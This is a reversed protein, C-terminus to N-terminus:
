PILANLAALFAELDLEYASAAERLTEEFRVACGDCAPLHFDRFVLPAEPHNKWADEITMEAHFEVAASVKENAQLASAAGRLTRRIITRFRGMSSLM